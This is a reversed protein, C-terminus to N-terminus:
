HEPMHFWNITVQNPDAPQVEIAGGTNMPNDISPPAPNTSYPGQLNGSIVWDPSGSNGQPLGYKSSYNPTTLPNDTAWCGGKVDNGPWGASENPFTGQRYISDEIAGGIQAGSTAGEVAGVVSGVIAGAITGGGPEVVTGAGADETGQTIAGVVGGVVGGVVKGVKGDGLPDTFDIPDEGVYAYLDPDGGWFGIPDQAIFRQLTPNYYRGRFFYLGTGDNERGTFQFSNEDSAGTITTGGFPDNSYSTGINQASGVLGITSGLLDTLLTSLNSSSDNRAFYEDTRLGTLLNASTAGGQLEQVPNLYDYLFQTNAGAITKSV